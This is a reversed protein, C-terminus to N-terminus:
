RYLQKLIGWTTTEVSITKEVEVVSPFSKLGLNDNWTGNPWMQVHDEGGSNNPEGGAWNTYMVPEGSSWVFNNESAADNLGIWPQTSSTVFTTLVFNNEAADSITVLHGGLTSVAFAEAANWNAASVLYYCHGNAPNLVPGQVVAQASATGVGVCLLAIAAICMSVMKRKRVPLM